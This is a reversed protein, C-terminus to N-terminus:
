KPTKKIGLYCWILIPNDIYNIFKITDDNYIYSTNEIFNKGLSINYINNFYKKGLIIEIITENPSKVYDKYYSGLKFLYSTNGIINNDLAFEKSELPKLFIPTLSNYIKNEVINM